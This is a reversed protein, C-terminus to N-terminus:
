SKVYWLDNWWEVTVLNGFWQHALEHAIVDAVRQQNSSSSETEDFILNTERYTILGWHETAGSSYDPIAAMHLKPLPYPVNFYDQYYDTIHRGVELSYTLRDKQQSTGYVRFPINYTPTNSEIFEFDCVIFVALYTVMPVSKGFTVETLGSAPADPVAKEEIMNSLAIYGETPRVLTTTFTSKFSPEDFCPFARRAYTPQFKSTAIARSQGNEDTYVSKYFGLIGNDLPGDFELYLSYNGAPVEAQPRVVWFENEPYEFADLLPINFGGETKLETKTVAMYKIHALFFDRPKTCEIHITVKGSFHANELFDPYLYLDYHHPIMDQPIRYDAEWPEM